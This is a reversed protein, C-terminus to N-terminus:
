KNIGDWERINIITCVLVRKNFLRHVLYKIWWM